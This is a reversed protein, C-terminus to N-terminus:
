EISNVTTEEMALGILTVSYILLVVANYRYPIDTTRVIHKYLVTRMVNYLHIMVILVIVTQLTALTPIGVLM